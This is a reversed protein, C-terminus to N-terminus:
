SEESPDACGSHTSGAGHRISMEQGAPQETWEAVEPSCVFAGAGSVPQRPAIYADAAPGSFSPCREKAQWVLDLSRAKKTSM